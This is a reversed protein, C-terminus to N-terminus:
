AWGLFRQGALAVAVLSGVREGAALPWGGAVASCAGLRWWRAHQCWVASCPGYKGVVAAGREGCRQSDGPHAAATRYAAGRSGYLFTAAQGVLSLELWEMGPERALLALMEWFPQAAPGPLASCSM